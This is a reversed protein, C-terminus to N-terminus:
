VLAEQLQREDSERNDGLQPQGITAEDVDVLEGVHGDLHRSRPSSSQGLPCPVVTPSTVSKRRSPGAWRSTHPLAVTSRPMLPLGAGPPDTASSGTNSARPM